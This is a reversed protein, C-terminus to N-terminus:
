SLGEYDLFLAMKEDGQIARRIQDSVGKINAREREPTVLRIRHWTRSLLVPGTAPTM